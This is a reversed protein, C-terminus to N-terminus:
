QRPPVDCRLHRSVLVFIAILPLTILLSGAMIRADEGLIPVAVESAGGPSLSPLRPGSAYILPNIFRSWTTMFIFLAIVALAPKMLPLAAHWYIRLFGRGELRTADELDRPIGRLFRGLIIVALISIVCNEFWFPYVAALGGLRQLVFFHPLALAQAGILFFCLLLALGIGRGGWRKWEFAYAVLSSALVVGAVNCLALLLGGGLYILLSQHMFQLKTAGPHISFTVIPCASGRHLLFVRYQACLM